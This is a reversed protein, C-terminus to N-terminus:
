KRLYALITQRRTYALGLVFSLMLVVFYMEPGTKVKTMEEAKPTPEQIKTPTEEVVPTEAVWAWAKYVVCEKHAKESMSIEGSALINHSMVEYIMLAAEQWENPASDVKYAAWMSSKIWSVKEGAPLVYGDFEANKLAEFEGTYEWFTDDNPKKSIWAGNLAKLEPMKQEEKYMIKKNTTDNVWLDDLFSLTDGTKLEGGNFCQDCSNEGFVPSSGCEVESYAAHVIGTSVMMLAMITIIRRM